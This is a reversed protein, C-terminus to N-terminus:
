EWEGLMICGGCFGCGVVFMLIVFYFGDKLWILSGIDYVGVIMFVKFWVFVLVNLSEGVKLYIASCIM